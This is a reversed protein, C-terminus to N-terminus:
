RRKGFRRGFSLIALGLGLLAVTAPEPVTGGSTAGGGGTTTGTTTYTVGTQGASCGTGSTDTCIDVAFFAGTKANGIFSTELLGTATLDFVLPGPNPTNGGSGCASGCSLAYQMTGAGDSNSATVFTFGSPSINSFNSATLTPISSDLNFAFTDLGTSVFGVNSALNVTVEVQDTGVQHVTVTGYNGSGLTSAQDLTFMIDASAPGALALSLGLAALGAVVSRSM